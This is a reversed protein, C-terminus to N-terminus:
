PRHACNQDGPPPQGCSVVRHEDFAGPRRSLDVQTVPVDGVHAKGLGDITRHDQHGVDVTAANERMQDAREIQRRWGLLVADLAEDDVTKATVDGAEVPQFLAGALAHETHQGVQVAQHEVGPVDDRRNRDGGQAQGGLDGEAPDPRALGHRETTVAAAQDDQGTGLSHAGVEVPKARLAPFRRDFLVQAVAAFSM